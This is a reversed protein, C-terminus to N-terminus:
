FLIFEVEDRRRENEKARRVELSFWMLELFELIETKMNIWPVEGVEVIKTLPCGYYAVRCSCYLYYVVGIYVECSCKVWSLKVENYLTHKSQVSFLSKCTQMKKRPNRASNMPGALVSKLLNKKLIPDWSM